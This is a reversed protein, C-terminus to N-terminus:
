KSLEELIEEFQEPLPAEFVRGNLYELPGDCNRFELRFSHLLQTSLHSSEYM